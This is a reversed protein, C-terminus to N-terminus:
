RPTRCSSRRDAWYRLPSVIMVPGPVSIGASIGGSLMMATPIQAGSSRPLTPEHGAARRVVHRHHLFDQAALDLGLPRVGGFTRGLFVQLLGRSRGPGTRSRPTTARARRRADNRCAEAPHPAILADPCSSQGPRPRLARAGIPTHRDALTHGDVGRHPGPAAPLRHRGMQVLKREPARPDDGDPHSAAARSYRGATATRCDQASASASVRRDEAATSARRSGPGPGGRGYRRRITRM